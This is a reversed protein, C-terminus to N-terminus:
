NKTKNVERLDTQYPPVGAPARPRCRRPAAVNLPREIARAVGCAAALQAYRGPRPSTPSRPVVWQSRRTSRCTSRRIIVARRCTEGDFQNRARPAERRSGAHEGRPARAGGVGIERASSCRPHFRPLAHHGTRLTPSATICRDRSRTARTGDSWGRRARPVPACRRRPASSARARRAPARSSPDVAVEDGLIM